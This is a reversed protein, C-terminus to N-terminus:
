EIIEETIESITKLLLEDKLLKAKLEISQEISEKIRM